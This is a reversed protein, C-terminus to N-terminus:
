MCELKKKIGEINRGGYQYQAPPSNLRAQMCSGTKEPIPTNGARVQRRMAYIIVEYPTQECISLSFQGILTRSNIAFVFM